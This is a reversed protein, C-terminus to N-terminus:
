GGLVERLSGKMWRVVQENSQKVEQELKDCLAMLRNIKEVIAFCLGLTRNVQSSKDLAEKLKEQETPIQKETCM